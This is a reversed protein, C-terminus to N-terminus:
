EVLKTVAVIANVTFLNRPSNPMKGLSIVGSIRNISHILYLTAGITLRYRRVSKSWAYRIEDAKSWGVNARSSKSRVRAQVGFHQFLEGDFMARGDYTAETDYLTIVEDPMDPENQQYVPWVDNPSNNPDSGVGLAITLRRVIDAPSHDLYQAPM